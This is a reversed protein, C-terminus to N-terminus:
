IVADIMDLLQPKTMNKLQTAGIPCAAVCVGCGQCLVDRVGTKKTCEDIHRAGYPCIELCLGCGKCTSPDVKVINHPNYVKVSFLQLVKRAASGSGDQCLSALIDGASNDAGSLYVGRHLTEVLKIKPNALGFEESKLKLMQALEKVSNSPTNAM